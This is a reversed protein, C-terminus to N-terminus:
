PLTWQVFPDVTADGENCLCADLAAELALQDMAQGIFVLEQRRDGHEHEVEPQVLTPELKMQRWQEQSLTCLWPAEPGIFCLKGALSLQGQIDSRNALWIFGKARLLGKFALAYQSVELQSVAADNSPVAVEGEPEELLFTASLLAHLKGPDLPQRRRYVFSTIGFEESEPLSEERLSLLWGPARTATAMSFLNTDLLLDLPLQSRTTHHVKASPNFRKVIGEITTLASPDVLDCKNLLVIDAFEVQDILLDVLNRDDEDAAEADIDVVRRTDNYQSLFNVTDIVTVCADLEATFPTALQAFHGREALLFAEAVQMPESIGTSEIICYDFQDKAALQALELVLDERLTCCICGNELQVMETPNSNDLHRVLAADINLAAMDNVIVCIKRGEAHSLIYQLLTTKGAGLFGSLITVRM